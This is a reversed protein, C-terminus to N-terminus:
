NYALMMGALALSLTRLIASERQYVSQNFNWM